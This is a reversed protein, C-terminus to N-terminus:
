VKNLLNFSHKRLNQLRRNVDEWDIGICNLDINKNGNCSYLAKELGFMKLLSKVRTLGRGKNGVVVFPKHFLISFVCAHFSDTVVLEADMFGRLWQEVPPQIREALPASWDDVRSNGRFPILGTEDALRSILDTILETEDLIYCLLTGKSKPVDARKVLDVYDQVDLLMTPDLVHSANVGLFKRCLEVASEERVSVVDFKRLLERCRRTQGATYEWDSTGFSAAYAMRKVNWDRAFDLYANEIKTPYYMPRWVQDSGVVFADFNNEKLDLLKGVEFYHIYKDIFQLTHQGVIPYVRNYYSEFFVHENRGLIYKRIMRKPYSYPWKWVPLKAKNPTTIVSVEHGMRELGTQLAYAQLIGGYNTHLPLTLIGIRM